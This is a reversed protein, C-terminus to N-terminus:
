LAGASFVIGVEANWQLGHLYYNQADGTLNKMGLHYRALGGVYLGIKDTVYGMLRIKATPSFTLNHIPSGNLYTIGPGISMPISFRSGLPIAKGFMTNMALYWMDNQATPSFGEPIGKFEKKDFKGQGYEFGFTMFSTDGTQSDLAANISWKNKYNYEFKDSGNQIIPCIAGVPSYGVYWNSSIQARTVNTCALLGLIVAVFRYKKLFTIM